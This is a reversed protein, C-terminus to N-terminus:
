DHTREAPPTEGETPDGAVVTVGHDALRIWVDTGVAIPRTVAHDAVFLEGPATTVTYEMHTGLYAAKEVRGAVGPGGPRHISLSLAEPRIAVRVAGLFTM